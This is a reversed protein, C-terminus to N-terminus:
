QYHQWLPHQQLSQSQKSSQNPLMQTNTHMGPFSQTM